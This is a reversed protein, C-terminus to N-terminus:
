GPRQSRLLPISRDPAHGRQRPLHGPQLTPQRHDNHIPPSPTATLTKPIPLHTSPTLTVFLPLRLLLAQLLQLHAQELFTSAVSILDLYKRLSHEVTSSRLTTLNRELNSPSQLPIQKEPCWQSLVNIKLNRLPLISNHAFDYLCASLFSPTSALPRENM